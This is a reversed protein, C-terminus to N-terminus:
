PTVGTISKVVASFHNSSYSEDKQDGLSVFAHKSTQIGKCFEKLFNLKGDNANKVQVRISANNDIADIGKHFVDVNWTDTALDYDETDIGVIDKVPFMIGGGTSIQGHLFRKM